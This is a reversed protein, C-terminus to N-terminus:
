YYLVFFTPSVGLIIKKKLIFKRRDSRSDKVSKKRKRKLYFRILKTILLKCLCVDM